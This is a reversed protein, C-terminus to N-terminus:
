RESSKENSPVTRFVYDWLPNSVGYATNADVYHHKLHYEKLWKGAGKKMPFHHTAYHISDYCVYGFVLGAFYILYYSGFIEKFLLYFIVALPISVMLPMVLRTGDRPYDHHVGHVLFHIKKGTESKPYTHFAFRHMFYELLTWLLVGALFTLIIYLPNKNQVGFYLSVAIVPLYVVLPTAPHIHSFYELVPNKFLRVTEDKNSVFKRKM